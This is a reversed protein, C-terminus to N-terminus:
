VAVLVADIAPLLIRRPHAHIQSNENAGFAGSDVSLYADIVRLHSREFQVLDSRRIQENSARHAVLSEIFDVLSDVVEALFRAWAWLFHLLALGKDLLLVNEPAENLARGVPFLFEASVHLCCDPVVVHMSEKLGKGLYFRCMLYGM